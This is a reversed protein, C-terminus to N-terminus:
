KPVSARSRTFWETVIAATGESNGAAFVFEGNSAQSLVVAPKDDQDNLFCQLEHLDFAVIFGAIEQRREPTYFSASAEEGLMDSLTKGDGLWELVDTQETADFGDALWYNLVHAIPIDDYPM